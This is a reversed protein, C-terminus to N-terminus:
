RQATQTLASAISPGMEVMFRALTAQAAASAAQGSARPGLGDAATAVTVWASTDSRGRGRERALDLKALVESPTSFQGLWYWQWAEHTSDPGRVRARTIEAPDADKGALTLRGRELEVWHPDAPSVLQNFSNVLESGQRQNRYLGLYVGVRQGDKEFVQYSQAAAGSIHPRWAQWTQPQPAVEVWGAAPPVAVLDVPRPDRRSELAAEALPPVLLALTALVAALAIPAAGLVAPPPAPPEQGAVPDERWFSGIWFLLMMVLGFFIWGYIIHDVGTAIRNNSFHGLMVILYARLWNAVLPTIISALIFLLRRRTSRYMLWAYVCGVMLSAILYRIGSCAEVVSWAGSPIMFHNGERYVPVGSVQLAMVTFDATWDILQPVLVEGFPVAFFLFLLPIALAKVWGWGFLTLVVAPVMAIMAFQSPGIASALEGALWVAGAAAVLILGPWWPRAAVAALQDREGWLLWLFIPIVLFCHNFTEARIWIAVMSRTTDAYLALVALLVLSVMVVALRPSMRRDAARAALRAQTDSHM